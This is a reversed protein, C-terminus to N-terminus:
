FKLGFSVSLSDSDGADYSRRTGEISFFLDRQPYIQIGASLVDAQTPATVVPNGNLRDAQDELEDEYAISAYPIVEAGRFTFSKSIQYGVTFKRSDFDIAPVNSLSGVGSVQYADVTGNNSNIQTYTAHTFGFIDYSAGANLEFTVSDYDSEGTARLGESNWHHESEVNGAQVGVMGDLFLRVNAEGMPDSQLSTYGFIGYGSYDGSFSGDGHNADAMSYVGAFGFSLNENKSYELGFTGREGAVETSPLVSAILGGANPVVRSDINYEFTNLTGFMSVNNLWPNSESVIAVSPAGLQSVNRLLHGSRLRLMRSNLDSSFQSSFATITDKLTNVSPDTLVIVIIPEVPEDVEDSIEGERVVFVYRGEIGVNTLEVLANSGGDLFAGNVSSGALEEFDTGNGNSYGVRASSGGLGNTGGSADGTEWQITGYNFEMDFEGIGLDSRDVIILQFSNLKDDQSSFYGVNIWNVGFATRGDVTGSGYSVLSSNAGRTDVDAFFPAVIASTPLAVTSPTYSSLAQDFTINGNNNIYASSYDAGFFNLSFGLSTLGTSGDDNAALTSTDFGGRIQASSVGILGFGLLSTLTFIKM